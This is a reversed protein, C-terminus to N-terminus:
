FCRFPQAWGQRQDHDYGATGCKPEAYDARCRPKKPLLRSGRSGRAASAEGETVPRWVAMGNREKCLPMALAAAIRSGPVRRGVPRRSRSPDALDAQPWTRVLDTRQSLPVKRGGSGVTGRDEQRAEAKGPRQAIPRVVPRPDPWDLGSEGRVRFEAMLSRRAEDLKGARERQALAILEDLEAYNLSSIMKHIREVTNDM